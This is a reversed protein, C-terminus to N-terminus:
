TNIGNLITNLSKVFSNVADGRAYRDSIKSLVSKKYTSETLSAFVIMLWTPPHELGVALVEKANNGYWTSCTIAFLTGINLDTLATNQVSEKIRDCLQSLDTITTKELFDLVDFIKEAPVKTVRAISSVLRNYEMEDFHKNNTFCSYYFYCSLISVSAQEAPDLSFRRAVCESLLSSYVGAPITSIDRLTETKEYLWFQNLILRNINWSYEVNNRVVFTETPQYWKGYNRVDIALQKTHQMKDDKGGDNFLIPHNFFHVSDATSDGGCLLSYTFTLDSRTSKHKINILSSSINAHTLKDLVESTKYGSCASTEYATQCITM